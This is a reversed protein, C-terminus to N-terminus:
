LSAAFKKINNLYHDRDHEILYGRYELLLSVAVGALLFGILFVNSKNTLFPYFVARKKLLISIVLILNVVAQMAYYGRTLMLGNDHKWYKSVQEVMVIGSGILLAGPVIWSYKNSAVLIILWYLNIFFFLATSYRFILYRNFYMSTLSLKKSGNLQQSSKPSM